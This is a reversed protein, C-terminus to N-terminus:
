WSSCNKDDCERTEYRDKQVLYSFCSSYKLLNKVKICDHYLIIVVYHIVDILYNDM